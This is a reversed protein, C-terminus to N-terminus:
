RAQYLMDLCSVTNFLAHLVIPALLRQTRLALWGLGLGLVVLPIPTPWVVSHVNAFLVASGFVGLVARRRAEPDRLPAIWLLRAPPDPRALQDALWWAVPMLSAALVAPGALSLTRAVGSESVAMSRFVVGALIAWGFGIAGGRPHRGLWPQLIGRFLVEERIPAAIVSEILIVAAVAPAAGQQKLVELLPHEPPQSGCLAGYVVLTVLNVLYVAASVVLWARIGLLTEKRWGSATLGLQDRRAGGIAGIVLWWALIVLPTAILSAVLRGQITPPDIVATVLEPIAILAICAVGCHWGNWTVARWRQPPLLRGRAWLSLVIALPLVIWEVTVFAKLLAVFEQFTPV